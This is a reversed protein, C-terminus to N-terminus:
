SVTRRRFSLAATSIERVTEGSLVVAPSIMPAEFIARASPDVPVLGAEIVAGCGSAEALRRVGDALGDSLDIAARSAGARALMAGARIPPAPRCARRVAAQAPHGAPPLGHRELWRLGAAGAGLSGTVWIEDGPRAGTRLLTKRAHVSGMATIDVVLPGPSRTLNGGAIAVRAERAADAVGDILRDFDEIPWDAPLALSLLVIRPEAGMAALDSLNVLVAKAGIDEPKSWDRRFHVGEILMDTTIAEARNRAPRVIAADDGIGLTLDEHFRPVRAHIRAILAREDFEGLSSITM